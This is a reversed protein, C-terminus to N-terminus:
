SIAFATATVPEFRISNGLDSYESGSNRPYPPSMDTSAGLRDLVQSELQVDKGQYEILEEVGLLNAANLDLKSPRRIYAWIRATPHKLRLKAALLWASEAYADVNIAAQEWASEASVDANVVLINAPGNAYCKVAETSNRARTVCFGAKMFCKKLRNFVEDRHEVLFVAPMTFLEPNCPPYDPNGVPRKFEINHRTISNSQGHTAVRPVSNSVQKIM